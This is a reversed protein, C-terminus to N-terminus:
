RLAREIQRTTGTVDTVVLTNTRADASVSGRPTLMPAVLKALDSANAHSVPILVTRLPALQATAQARAAKSQAQAELAEATDILWVSERKDAALGEHDLVVQLADKWPVSRLKVTIKGSVRQSLVFSLHAREALFGLVNAVEADKVDLDIRQELPGPAGTALVASLFICSAAM